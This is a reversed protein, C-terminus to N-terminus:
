QLGAQTQQVFTTQAYSSKTVHKHKIAGFVRIIVHASEELRPIKEHNVRPHPLLACALAEKGTGTEGVIIVPLDSLASFRIITRFVTMMANSEGILGLDRMVAKVNDEDNRRETEVLVIREVTDRLKKFGKAKLNQIVDM